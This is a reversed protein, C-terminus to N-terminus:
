VQGVFLEFGYTLICFFVKRVGLFLDVRDVLLHDSAVDSGHRSQQLLLPPGVGPVVVTVGGHVLADHGVLLVDELEQEIVMRVM